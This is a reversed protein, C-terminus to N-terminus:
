LCSDQHKHFYLNPQTRMYYYIDKKTIKMAETVSNFEGYPTVVCKKLHDYNRDKAKISIKQKAEISHNFPKRQQIGDRTNDEAKCKFVNDPHYPGTDNIRAMVLQGRYRGRNVFDEGWWALWEEYTFQWEIGRVAASKRQNRFKDRIINM